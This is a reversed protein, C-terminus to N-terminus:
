LSEFKYGFPNFLMFGAFACMRFQFDKLCVADMFICCGVSKLCVASIWNFPGLKVCTKLYTM